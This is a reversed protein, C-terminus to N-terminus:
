GDKRRRETLSTCWSTSFVCCLGWWFYLYGTFFRGSYEKIGISMENFMRGLKGGAKHKIRCDMRFIPGIFCLFIMCYNWHEVLCTRNMKMRLSLYIAYFVQALWRLSQAEKSILCTCIFPFIRPIRRLKFATTSWENTIGLGSGVAPCSQVHLLSLAGRGSGDIRQHFGLISKMCWPEMCQISTVADNWTENFITTNTTIVLSIQKKQTCCEYINLTCNAAGFLKISSTVNDFYKDANM